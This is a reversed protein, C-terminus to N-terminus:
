RQEPSLSYLLDNRLNCGRTPHADGVEADVAAGQAGGIPSTGDGVNNIIETITGNPAVHFAHGFGLSTAYVGGSENASIDLPKARM